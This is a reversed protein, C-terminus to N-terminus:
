AYLHLVELFRETVRETTLERSAYAYAHDAYVRAHAPERLWDEFTALWRAEDGQVCIGLQERGMMQGPDVYLSLVPVGHWFAELMTNPYGEALSTLLLTRANRYYAFLEPRSLRDVRRINPCAEIQAAIQQSYAGCDRDLPAVMVFSEAPFRQALAVVAEPHKLETLKGVWLHERREGEAPAPFPPFGNPIVVSELGEEERLMAQQGAHQAIIHDAQHLARVFGRTRTSAGLQRALKASVDIDHAVWYVFSRRLLKSFLAVDRTTSGRARSVYVDAAVRKLVGFLSLKGRWGPQHRFTVVRVGDVMADSPPHAGTQNGDATVITVSVGRAALDRALLSFQLEAGGHPYTCDPHFLSLANPSVLCLSPTM